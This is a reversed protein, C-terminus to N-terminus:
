EGAQAAVENVFRSRLPGSNSKLTSRAVSLVETLKSTNKPAKLLSCYESVAAAFRIEDVDTASTSRKVDIGDATREDGLTITAIKGQTGEDLIEFLLTMPRKENQLSVRFSRAENLAGDILRLGSVSSEFHIAATRPYSPDDLRLTVLVLMRDDNLPSSAAAYGIAVGGKRTTSVKWEQDSIKWTCAQLKGLTESSASQRQRLIGNEAPKAGASISAGEDDAAGFSASDADGGFSPANNSESYGDRLVPESSFDETQSPAAAGASAGLPKQPEVSKNGPREEQHRRKEPAPAPESKKQAGIKAAPSTISRSDSKQQEANAASDEKASDPIEKNRPSASSPPAGWEDSKKDSEVAIRDSLEKEHLPSERKKQEVARLDESHPVNTEEEVQARDKRKMEPSSVEPSTSRDSKSSDTRAYDTDAGRREQPLTMDTVRKQGDFGEFIDPAERVILLVFCVSLAATGLRYKRTAVSYAAFLGFAATLTLAPTGKMTITMARSDLALLVMVILVAVGCGILAWLLTRAKTRPSTAAPLPEASIRAMVRDVLETPFEVPQEGIERAMREITHYRSLENRLAEDNAVLDDIRQRVDEDLAGRVYDPFLRRAVERNM